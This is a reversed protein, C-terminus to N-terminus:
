FNFSTKVIFYSWDDTMSGENVMGLNMATGEVDHWEVKVLWSSNIDYRAGLALDKRYNNANSHDDKDNYFEDYLATLSLGPVQPVQLTAMVYMGESTETLFNYQNGIFGALPELGPAKVDNERQMYEIQITALSLAYEASLVYMYEYNADIDFDSVIGNFVGFADDITVDFVGQAKMYSAGLRLGDLGSNYTFSAVFTYDPQYTLDSVNATAGFASAVGGVISDM